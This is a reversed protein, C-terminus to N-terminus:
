VSVRGGWFQPLSNMLGYQVQQKFGRRKRAISRKMTAAQGPLNM